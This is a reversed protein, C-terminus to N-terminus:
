SYPNKYKFTLKYLHSYKGNVHESSLLRKKFEEQLYSNIGEQNPHFFANRYSSSVMGYIFLKQMEQDAPITMDYLGSVIDPYDYNFYGPHYMVLGLNKNLPFIIIPSRNLADLLDRYDKSDKTSDSEPFFFFPNDSTIIYSSEFNILGWVRGVIFKEFYNLGDKILNIHLIPDSTIKYKKHEVLDWIKEFSSDSAQADFNYFSKRLEGKGKAMFNERFIATLQENFSNRHKLSRLLQVTIFRALKEREPVPWEKHLILKKFIDGAPTEINDSLWDEFFSEELNYEEQVEEGPSYFSSIVSAAKTNSPYTKCQWFDAIILKEIEAFGSLYFKPVTHHKQKRNNGM